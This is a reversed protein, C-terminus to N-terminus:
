SLDDTKDPPRTMLWALMAVAGLAAGMGVIVKPTFSEPTEYGIALYTAGIFVAAFFCIALGRFFRM